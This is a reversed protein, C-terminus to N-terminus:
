EAQSHQSETPRRLTGYLVSAPAETARRTLDGSEGSRSSFRHMIRALTENRPGGSASLRWVKCITVIQDPTRGPSPAITVTLEQLRGIQLPRHKENCFGLHGM